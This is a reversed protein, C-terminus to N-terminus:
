AERIVYYTSVGRYRGADKRSAVYAEADALSAFEMPLGRRFGDEYKQVTHTTPATTTEM